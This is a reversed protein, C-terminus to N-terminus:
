VGSCSGERKRLFEDIFFFLLAVLMAVVMLADIIYFSIFGFVMHILLALFFRYSKLIATLFDSLLSVPIGYIFSGLLCSLFVLIIFSFDASDMNYETFWTILDFVFILIISLISAYLAVIIKRIVLQTKYLKKRISPIFTLVIIYLAAKIEISEVGVWVILFILTVISTYMLFKYM